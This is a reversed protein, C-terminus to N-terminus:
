LLEPAEDGLRDVIQRVEQAREAPCVLTVGASRVVVLGEVGLLAVREDGESFVVCDRSDEAILEAGGAACNGQEDTGLVEPLSPWAGLDSWPWSIPLVRVNDARELIAMDVPLAPAEAFVAAVDGASAGREIPELIDPAHARFAELIVEARWVFMGSNWLFNGASLFEQARAADPKEVFRVVEQFGGEDSGGAAEIYGYGTAPYTPQIGFTVLADEKSAVEIAARMSARYSESDPIVHDAPLVAFVAEPNRRAVEVAAWAVSAATNRGVPEAFFNSAPLENLDAQCPASLAASTLVLAHEPDVLDGQRELTARLLSQGDLLKLLQKPHARRSAPWFRTGSGGALLVSYFETSPM